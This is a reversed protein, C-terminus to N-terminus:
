GPKRGCAKQETTESQGEKRARPSTAEDSDRRERVPEGLAESARVEHDEADPRGDM